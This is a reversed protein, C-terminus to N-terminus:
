AVAQIPQRAAKPTRGAMPKTVARSVQNPRGSVVDELRPEISLPMARRTRERANQPKAM